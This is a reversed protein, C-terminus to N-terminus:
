SPLEVLGLEVLRRLAERVTRDPLGTVDALAETDVTGDVFALVFAGVQDLPARRIEERTAVVRPARLKTNSAIAVARAGVNEVAVYARGTDRRRVGSKEDFRKKPKETATTDPTPPAEIITPEAPMAISKRLKMGAVTTKRAAGRPAEVVLIDERRRMGSSSESGWPLTNRRPVRAHAGSGKPAETERDRSEEAAKRAM